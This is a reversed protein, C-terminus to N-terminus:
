VTYQSKIYKDIYYSFSLQFACCHCGLAQFRDDVADKVFGSPSHGVDDVVANARCACDNVRHQVVVRLRSSGGCSRGLFHDLVDVLVLEFHRPNEFRVRVCIVDTGRGVELFM